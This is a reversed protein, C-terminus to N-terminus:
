QRSRTKKKREFFQKNNARVIEQIREPLDEFAPASTEEMDSRRYLLIYPTSTKCLRNIHSEDVRSVICDNFKYWQGGDNGLTYYHGSDLTSGCHIVAAFLTYVALQEQSRVTPLTVTKNYYVPHM